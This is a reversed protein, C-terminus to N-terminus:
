SRYPIGPALAYPSRHWVSATPYACCPYQNKQIYLLAFLYTELVQIPHGPYPNVQAQAVSICSYSCSVPGPTEEAGSININRPGTYLPVSQGFGTGCQHQQSLVARAKPRKQRYFLPLVSAELVQIPHGTSSPYLSNHWM